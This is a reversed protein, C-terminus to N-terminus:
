RHALPHTLCTEPAWSLAQTPKTCPSIHSHKICQKLSLAASFTERTAFINQCEWILAVPFYTSYEICNRQSPQLYVVMTYYSPKKDSIGGGEFVMRLARKVVICFHMMHTYACAFECTGYTQRYQTASDSAAWLLYRPSSTLIKNCYNICISATQSRMPTMGINLLHQQGYRHMPSAPMLSAAGSLPPHSFLSASTCTCPQAPQRSPKIVIQQELLVCDCM